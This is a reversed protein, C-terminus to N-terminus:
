DHDHGGHHKHWGRHRGNDHRGRWHPDRGWYGRRMRWRDGDRDWRPHYYVYGPRNRYWSGRIWIYRQGSWNWYGPAWVYGPRPPPVVEYPM